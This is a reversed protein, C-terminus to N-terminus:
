VASWEPIPEVPWNLNGVTPNIAILRVQSRYTIFATQNLLHPNIDPNIVDPENVWDTSALLQKATAQNEAATPVPIPIQKIQEDSPDYWYQNPLVYDACPVWFLPPAVEFEQQEVQAVRYGFEKPEQPSILAKM